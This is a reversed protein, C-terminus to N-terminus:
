RIENGIPGCHSERQASRRMLGALIVTWLTTSASNTFDHLRACRECRLIIGYRIAYHITTSNFHYERRTEKQGKLVVSKNYDPRKTKCFHCLRKESEALDRRYSRVRERLSRASSIQDIRDLLQDVKPTSKQQNRLRLYAKEAAADLIERLGVIGRSDLTLWRRRVVDLRKLYADIGNLREEDPKDLLAELETVESRLAQRLPRMAPTLIRPELGCSALASILAAAAHYRGSLLLFRTEQVSLDALHNRLSEEIAEADDASAFDDGLDAICAELYPRFWPHSLLRVWLSLGGQWRDKLEDSTGAFSGVLVTHAQPLVRLGHRSAWDKPELRKVDASTGSQPDLTANLFAALLLHLNARNIANAVAALDPAPAHDGAGAAPAPLAIEQDLYPQLAESTPDRLGERLLQAYPDRVLDFWLLQHKLRVLPEEIAQTAQQLEFGEFAPLGPILDPEEPSLGVRSLTLVNEGQFAADSTTANVPLRLIRFPNLGFSRLAPSSARAALPLIPDPTM